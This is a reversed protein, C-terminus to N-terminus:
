LGGLWQGLGPLFPATEPSPLLDNPFSNLPRLFSLTSISDLGCSKDEPQMLALWGEFPFEACGQTGAKTTHLMRRPRASRLSETPAHTVKRQFVVSERGLAFHKEEQCLHAPFGM